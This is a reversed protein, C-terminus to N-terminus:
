GNSGPNLDKLATYFHEGNKLEITTGDYPIKIDDGHGHVEKFLDYKSTDIQGLIYLAQGTTPTPSKYEKKDIHIVVEEHKKENPNTM